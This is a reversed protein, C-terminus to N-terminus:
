SANKYFLTWDFELAHAIKMATDVPPKHKGGEIRTYYPRAIGAKKAVQLQTLGLKKRQDILWQRM